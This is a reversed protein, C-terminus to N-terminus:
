DERKRLVLACSPILLALLGATVAAGCGKKEPAEASTDTGDATPATAEETPAETGSNNTVAGSLAPADTINVDSDKSGCGSLMMTLVLLLAIIRKM